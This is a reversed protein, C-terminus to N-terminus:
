RRAEFVREAPAQFGLRAVADRFARDAQQAVVSPRTEHPLYPDDNVMRRWDLGRYAGTKRALLQPVTWGAEVLSCLQEWDAIDLVALPQTVSQGLHEGVERIIWDYVLETMM